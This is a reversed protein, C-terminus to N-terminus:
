REKVRPWSQLVFGIGGLWQLIASLTLLWGWLTANLATQAPETVIRLILGLNLLWFAAWGIQENGRPQDRSFKPFMWHAVGFILQTVWGVLFAHFYTPLLGPPAPLLEGAALWVGMSLALVLYVLASKIYTRTLTPM